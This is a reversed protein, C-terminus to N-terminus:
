QVAWGLSTTSDERSLRWWSEGDASKPGELLRVRTGEPLTTVVAANKSPEARVNLPDPAVGAVQAVGGVQLATQVEPAGAVPSPALLPSLVILMVLSAVLVRQSM